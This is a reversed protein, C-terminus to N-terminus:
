SSSFRGNSSFMGVSGAQTIANKIANKTPEPAITNTRPRLLYNLSPLAPGLMHGECQGKGHENMYTAGQVTGNLGEASAGCPAYGM